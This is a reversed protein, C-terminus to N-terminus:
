QPELRINVPLGVKLLSSYADPYAEVMFVLKERSNVSYIVPPTFEAQSSIFTIHAPVSTECGDCDLSIDQGVSIQPLIKQSVFFRVKINEPPLINVVPYSQPVLEGVRYYTEEIRGKVKAIPRAEELQKKIQIVKQKAIEVAASAAKIEDVRAGLSAVSLSATLEQVQAKYSEYTATKEDVMAKSTNGSKALELYRRYEKEANVLNAEAQQKQKQIVAIEQPRKGKTLNKYNAEAQEIEAKASNLAAEIQTTDLAFLADGVNVEQGRQVYLEQLIGATTSAIYIYEGEVYGNIEEKQTKCASPILILLALIIKKM